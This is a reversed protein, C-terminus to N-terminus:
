LPVDRESAKIVLIGPRARSAPNGEVYVIRERHGV